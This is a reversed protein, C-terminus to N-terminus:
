ACVQGSVPWRGRRDYLTYYTGAIARVRARGEVVICRGHSQGNSSDGKVM